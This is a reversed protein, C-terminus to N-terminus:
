YLKSKLKEIRRLSEAIRAAPIVGNKVADFIINWGLLNRMADHAQYLDGYKKQQEEYIERRKEVYDKIKELSRGYGTFFASEEASSVCLYPRSLALPINLEPASSQVNFTKQSVDAQIINNNKEVRGPKNYLIGPELIM